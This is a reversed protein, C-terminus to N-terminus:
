PANTFEAMDRFAFHQAPYSGISYLDAHPDIQEFDRYCRESSLYSFGTPIHDRDAHPGSSRERAFGRLMLTSLPLWNMERSNSRHALAFPTVRSKLRESLGVSLAKM